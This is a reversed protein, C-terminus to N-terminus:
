NSLEAVPEKLNVQEKITKALCALLWVKTLKNKNSKGAETISKIMDNLISFKNEIYSKINNDFSGCGEFKDVPRMEGIGKLLLNLNEPFAYHCIDMRCIQYELDKYKGGHQLEEYPKWDWTLRAILLRVLRTKDPNKEGLWKQIQQGLKKNYHDPIKELTDEGLWRRIAWLYQQGNLSRGTVDNKWADEGHQIHNIGIKSPDTVPKLNIISDKIKRLHQQYKFHCAEFRTILERIQCVKDSLKGLNKELNNIEIIEPDETSIIINSWAKM